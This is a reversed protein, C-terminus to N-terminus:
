IILKDTRKWFLHMTKKYGVKYATEKLSCFFLQKITLLNSSFLSIVFIGVGLSQEISTIDM